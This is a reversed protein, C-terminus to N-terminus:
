HLTRRGLEAPNATSSAGEDGLVQESTMVRHGSQDQYVIIILKYNILTCLNLM